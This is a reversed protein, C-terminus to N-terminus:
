AAEVEALQLEEIMEVRIFKQIKGTATMPFEDVFGIYRPIKFHAIQGHCFAVIEEATAAERARLKIWM